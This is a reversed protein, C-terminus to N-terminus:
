DSLAASSVLMEELSDDPLDNMVDPSKLMALNHNSVSYKQKRNSADM